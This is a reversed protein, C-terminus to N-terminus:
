IHPHNKLWHTKTILSHKVQKYNWGTRRYPQERWYHNTRGWGLYSNTSTDCDEYRVYCFIHLNYTEVIFLMMCSVTWYQQAYFVWNLSIIPATLHSRVTLIASKILDYKLNCFYCVLWQIFLIRFKSWMIQGFITAWFLVGVLPLVPFLDLSFIKLQQRQWTQQRVSFGVDSL